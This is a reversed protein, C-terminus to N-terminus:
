EGCTTQSGFSLLAVAGLASGGATCYVVVEGKRIGQATLYGLGGPSVFQLLQGYTTFNSPQQADRLFPKDSPQAALLDRFTQPRERAAERIFCRVLQASPVLRISSFESIDTWPLTSEDITRVLEGMSECLIVGGDTGLEGMIGHGAARAFAASFRSFHWTMRACFEADVRVDRTIEHAGGTYLVMRQEGTSYMDMAVAEAKPRLPDKQGIIHLSPIDVRRPAVEPLGLARRLGGVESCCGLIVFEFKLDSSAQSILRRVDDQMLLTLMAAGQSFGYAGEFPGQKTVFELLGQLAHVLQTKLTTADDRDFWSYFPGEVLSEVSPDPQVSMPAPANVFDCGHLRLNELQLASVAANSSVGHLTLIRLPHTTGTCGSELDEKCGHFDNEVNFFRVVRRPPGLKHQIRSCVDGRTRPHSILGLSRSHMDKSNYGSRQRLRSIRGLSRSHMDKSNYGSGQRPRAEECSKVRRFYDGIDDCVVGDQQDFRCSHLSLDPAEMGGCPFDRGYLLPASSTGLSAGAILLQEEAVRIKNALREELQDGFIEFSGRAPDVNVDPSSVCPEPPMSITIAPRGRQM